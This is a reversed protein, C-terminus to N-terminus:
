KFMRKRKQNKRKPAPSDEDAGNKLNSATRKMQTPTPIAKPVPLPTSSSSSSGQNHSANQAPRPSVQSTSAASASATGVANVHKNRRFYYLLTRVRQSPLCKRIIRETKYWDFGPTAQGFRPLHVSAGMVKAARGVKMLGDELDSFRIEGVSGDRGRKQAVLLCVQAFGGYKLKIQHPLIHASGLGLNKADWSASYYTEIRSDM